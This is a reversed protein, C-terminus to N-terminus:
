SNLHAQDVKDRLQSPSSPCVASPGLHPSGPGKTQSDQPTGPAGGWRFWPPEGWFSSNVM